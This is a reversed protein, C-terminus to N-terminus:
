TFDTFARIGDDAGRECHSRMTSSWSKSICMRLGSDRSRARMTSLSSVNAFCIILSSCDRLDGNLGIARQNLGRPGTGSIREDRKSCGLGNTRLAALRHVDRQEEVSGARHTALLDAKCPLGNLM